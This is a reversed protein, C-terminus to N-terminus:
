GRDPGGGDPPEDSGQRAEGMVAERSTRVIQEDRLVQMRRIYADHADRGGLIMSGGGGAPTSPGPSPLSQFIRHKEDSVSRARAELEREKAEIVLDHHDKEGSLARELQDRLEEASDARWRGDPSGSRVVVAKRGDPLDIVQEQPKGRVSRNLYDYLVEIKREERDVRERDARAKDREDIAIVGKGAFCSGIFKANSWDRDMEERRDQIRNVATWLAQSTTMGLCDTGAIGTVLPAHVHAPQVQAWRFRSRNEYAYVEVLPHLRSARENLATLHEIIKDRVGAPLRSVTRSIRHVHRPRDNLANVGDVMFVSHAILACRYADRVEPPSARSPRMFDINRLEHHNLTKFVFSKGAINSTATLFGQFLFDEVEHWVSEDTGGYTEPLTIRVRGPKGPGPDAM